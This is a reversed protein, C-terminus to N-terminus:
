ASAFIIVKLMKKEIWVLVDFIVLLSHESSGPLFVISNILIIFLIKM